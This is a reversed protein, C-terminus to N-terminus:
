FANCSLLRTLSLKINYKLKFTEFSEIKFIVYNLFTLLARTQSM